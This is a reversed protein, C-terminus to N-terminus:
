DPIKGVTRGTQADIVSINGSRRTTVVTILGNVDGTAKNLFSIIDVSPWDGIGETMYFRSKQWVSNLQEEENFVHISGGMNQFPSARVVVKGSEHRLILNGGPRNINAAPDPGPGGALTATVVGKSNFLDFHGGDVDAYLRAVSKGEETTFVIGHKPITIASQRFIEGVIIDGQARVSGASFIGQAISGGLVGAAFAVVIISFQWRKSM